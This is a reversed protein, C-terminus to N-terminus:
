RLFLFNSIKFNSSNAQNANYQHFLSAKLYEQSIQSTKLFISPLM